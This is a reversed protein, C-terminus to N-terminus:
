SEGRHSYLGVKENVENKIDSVQMLVEFIQDKLQEIRAFQAETLQVRELAHPGLLYLDFNEKNVNNVFMLRLQRFISSVDLLEQGTKGLAIERRIKPFIYQEYLESSFLMRARADSLGLFAYINHADIGTPALGLEYEVALRDYLTRADHRMVLALALEKLRNLRANFAMISQEKLASLAEQKRIGSKKIAISYARKIKVLQNQANKVQRDLITIYGPVRNNITDIFKQQVNKHGYAPTTKYSIQNLITILENMLTNISILMDNHTGDLWVYLHNVAGRDAHTLVQEIKANLNYLPVLIDREVTNITKIVFSRHQPKNTRLRTLLEQVYQNVKQSCPVIPYERKKPQITREGLGFDEQTVDFVIRKKRQDVYKEQSEQPMLQELYASVLAEYNKVENKITQVLLGIRAKDWVREAQASLHVAIFSFLFILTGNFVKKINM